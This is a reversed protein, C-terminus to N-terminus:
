SPKKELPCTNLGFLSYLPCYGVLGTLLPVVGILALWRANGDVFFFAGLILFGAATRLVRDAIGENTNM